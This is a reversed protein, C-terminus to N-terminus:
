SQNLHLNLADTNVHIIRPADDPYMFSGGDAGLSTLHQQAIIKMRMAAQNPRAHMALKHIESSIAHCRIM